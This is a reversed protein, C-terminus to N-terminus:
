RNKEPVKGEITIPNHVWNVLDKISHKEDDGPTRFDWPDSYKRTKKNFLADRLIVHDTMLDYKSDEPLERIWHRYNKEKAAPTFEYTRGEKHQLNPFGFDRPKLMFGKRYPFERHEAASVSASYPNLDYIPKDKWVAKVITKLRDSLSMEGWKGKLDERDPDIFRPDELLANLKGSLSSINDYDPVKSAQANYSAPRRINTAVRGIGQTIGKPIYHGVAGGVGVGVGAGTLISILRDTLSSDERLKEKIEESANEAREPVEGGGSTMLGTLGGLVGGGIAGYRLNRYPDKPDHLPHDSLFGAVQALISKSDKSKGSNESQAIKKLRNNTYEWAKETTNESNIYSKCLLQATKNLSM